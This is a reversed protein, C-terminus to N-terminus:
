KKGKSNVDIIEYSHGSDSNENMVECLKIAVNKHPMELIESYGNTLLVHTKRGTTQNVMIKKILFM